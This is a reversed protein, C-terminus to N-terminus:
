ASEGSSGGSLQPLEVRCGDNFDYRIGEPGAQSPQPNPKVFMETLVSM